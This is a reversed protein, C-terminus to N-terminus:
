IMDYQKDPLRADRLMMYGRANDPLKCKAKKLEEYLVRKRSTYKVM